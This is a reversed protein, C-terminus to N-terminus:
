PLIGKSDGNANVASVPAKARQQPGAATIAPARGRRKPQSAAETEDGLLGKLLSDMDDKSPEGSTLTQVPLGGENSNNVLSDMAQALPDTEAQASTGGPQVNSSPQGNAAVTVADDEAESEEDIDKQKYSGLLTQLGGDADSPLVIEERLNM